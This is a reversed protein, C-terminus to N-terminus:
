WPGDSSSPFGITAIAVVALRLTLVPDITDIQIMRWSMSGTVKM